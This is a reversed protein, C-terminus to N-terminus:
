VILHFYLEYLIGGIFVVLMIVQFWTPISIQREPKRQGVERAKRWLLLIIIGDFGGMIGGVLSIITVFTTLKFLFIILPPLMAVLWALLKPFKFDYHYIERLVLGMALFSTTMSAIGFLTGITIVWQGLHSQLGPIAGEDTASGTIGVVVISFLMYIILPVIMGIKIAKFLSAKERLADVADPIASAASIAFLIVGYPLFMYLPDFTTLNEINIKPMGFVIIVGVVLMLFVVMIREIQVVMGLGALIVLAIIGFYVLSYDFAEWGGQIGILSEVFSGVAITYAILAGTLGILFSLMAVIRWRDGLYKKTYGIIQLREPTRLVVEGYALVLVISIFGLFLLYFLGIGVGSKSVAYPLAFIGAGVATGIIIAVSSFFSKKKM